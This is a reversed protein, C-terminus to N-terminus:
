PTINQQVLRWPGPDPCLIRVWMDYPGNQVDEFTHQSPIPSLTTPPIIFPFTPGGPETDQGAEVLALELGDIPGPCLVEFGVQLDYYLGDFQLAGFINFCSGAADCIDEGGSESSGGESTSYASLVIPSCCEMCESDDCGYFGRFTEKVQAFPKWTLDDDNIPEFALESVLYTPGDDVQVAGRSYIALLEDKFWKPVLETEIQHIKEITTRFNRYLSSKFTAKNSLERVKGMRVYAIHFYRVEPIGLYDDGDPLGYYVGNVDYGTVTAGEPHCSKIKKLPDCPEVMLMQSFFTKEVLGPGGADVYTSLYMIFTTPPSPPTNFYKFVGYWTGEPTRGVVYNAPVVQEMDGTCTDLLTWEMTSPKTTGFDVYAQFYPVGPLPASFSRECAANRLCNYVFGTYQTVSVPTPTNIM